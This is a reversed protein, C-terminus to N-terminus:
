RALEADCHEIAAPAEEAEPTGPHDALVQHLLAKCGAYDGRRWRDNAKETLATAAVPTGAAQALVWDLETVAEDHRKAMSLHKGLALRVQTEGAADGAARKEDRLTVLAAISAALRTRWAERTRAGELPAIALEIELAVRGPGAPETALRERLSAALAVSPDPPPAVAPEARCAATLAFALALAAASRLRMSGM